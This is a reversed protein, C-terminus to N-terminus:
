RAFPTLIHHSKFIENIVTLWIAERLKCFRQKSDQYSAWIYWKQIQYSM